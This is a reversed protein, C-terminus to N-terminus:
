LIKLLSLVHKKYDHIFSTATNLIDLDNSLKNWVSTGLLSINKQGLDSKRLAIGLAM